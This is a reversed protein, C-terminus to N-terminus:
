ASISISGYMYAYIHRRFMYNVGSVDVTSECTGRWHCPCLIYACLFEVVLIFLGVFLYVCVSYLVDEPRFNSLIVSPEQHRRQVGHPRRLVQVV